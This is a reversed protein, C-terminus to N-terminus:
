CSKELTLFKMKSKFEELNIQSKHESFNLQSFINPNRSIQFSLQFPSNRSVEFVVVPTKKGSKM